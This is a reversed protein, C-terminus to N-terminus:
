AVVKVLYGPTHGPARWDKTIAYTLHGACTRAMPMPYTAFHPHTVDCAPYAATVTFMAETACHDCTVRRTTESPISTEPTFDAPDDM